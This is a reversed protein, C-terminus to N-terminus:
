LPYMTSDSSIWVNLVNEPYMYSKSITSIYNIRQDLLELLSNSHRIKVLTPIEICCIRFFRFHNLKLSYLSYLQFYPVFVQLRISTNVHNNSHLKSFRIIIQSINALAQLIANALSKFWDLGITVNTSSQCLDDQIPLVQIQLDLHVQLNHLDM